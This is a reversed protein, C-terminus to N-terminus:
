PQLHTEGLGDMLIGMRPTISENTQLSKVAVRVRAIVLVALARVDHPVHRLRQVLVAVVDARGLCGLQREQRHLLAAAQPVADRLERHEVRGQAVVEGRGVEAVELLLEDLLAGLLVGGDASCEVVRPLLLPVAEDLLDALLFRLLELSSSYVDDRIQKM